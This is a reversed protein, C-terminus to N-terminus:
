RKVQADLTTFLAALEDAVVAHGAASLHYDDPLFVGPGAARLAPLLNVAPVGLGRADAVFDELLAETATMDRPAARYKQWESASVQVDLPLAAAVVQCGHERCVSVARALHQGLPTRFPGPRAGRRAAERELALPAAAPPPGGDGIAHVLQRVALVLHSRGFLFGRLPFDRAATAPAAAAWGDVATTRQTNPLTEFWDNAANAFFVAHTPKFRPALDALALVSEPPGWSPVAAPLAELDARRELRAAMTDGFAVGYGLVQSDGLLLARRAQPASQPWAPGRFGLDNTAIETLRGDRSRVTTADDPRLRVGYRADAEFLNLYPYAGRHAARAVVEAAGLGAAASVLCAAIRAAFSRPVSSGAHGDNM